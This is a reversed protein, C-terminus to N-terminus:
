KKALLFDLLQQLSAACAANGACAKVHNSLLQFAKSETKADINALAAAFSALREASSEAGDVALLDTIIGVATTGGSIKDWLGM